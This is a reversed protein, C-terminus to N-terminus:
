PAISGDISFSWEGIFYTAGTTLTGTFQIIVNGNSLVTLVPTANIEVPNSVRVGTSYAPPRFGPPLTFILDGSNLTTSKKFAGKVWVRTGFIDKKYQCKSEGSVNSYNSAFSTVDNWPIPNTILAFAIKDIFLGLATNLQFGDYENEAIENPTLGGDVMLQSFFQHSDGYVQEDVPTGKTGSGDDDQIRGHPYTSTPAIVQPKNKLSRM